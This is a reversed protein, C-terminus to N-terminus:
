EGGLYEWLMDIYREETFYHSGDDDCDIVVDFLGQAPATYTFKPPRGSISSGYIYYVEACDPTYDVRQQFGYGTVTPPKNEIILRILKDERRATATTTATPSPASQATATPSPAPQATATSAPAAQSPAPSASESASKSPASQPADAQSGGGAEQTAQAATPTVETGDPLVYVTKETTCAAALVVLAIAVSILAPSIIKM